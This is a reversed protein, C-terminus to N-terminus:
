NKVFLKEVQSEKLLGYGDQTQFMVLTTGLTRYNSLAIIEKGLTVSVSYDKNNKNEEAFVSKMLSYLSDLSGGEGSFQVQFTESIVKYRYNRFRITYVTDKDGDPNITYSLQAIFAGM